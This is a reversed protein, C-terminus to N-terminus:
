KVTSNSESNVETYVFFFYFQLCECSIWRAEIARIFLKPLHLCAPMSVLPLVHERQQLSVRFTACRQPFHEHTGDQTTAPLPHM